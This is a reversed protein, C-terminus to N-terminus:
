AREDKWEALVQLGKESLGLLLERDKVRVLALQNKFGLSRLERVQITGSPGLSPGRLRRLLYIGVLFAGLLLFTFGLVKVYAEWGM